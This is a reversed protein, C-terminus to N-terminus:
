AAGYTRAVSGGHRGVLRNANDGVAARGVATDKFVVIYSDAVATDGGASRITGTPEAALAPTAAALMSLTAVGVLVSRHALGM